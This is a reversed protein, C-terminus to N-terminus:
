RSRYPKLTSWYFEHRCRCTMHDCGGNKEIYEHCRPCKKVKVGMVAEVGIEEPASGPEEPDWQHECIFCMVRDFGLYGLGWCEPRPCDVQMTRPYIPNAQLRRRRIVMPLRSFSCVEESHACCHQWVAETLSVQCRPSFCRAVVSHAAILDDVQSAAWLPWCRKCAVHGCSANELLSVRPEQCIVCRQFLRLAAVDPAAARVRPTEASRFAADHTAAYVRVTKSYRSCFDRLMRWPMPHACGAELCRM